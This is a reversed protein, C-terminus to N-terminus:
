NNIALFCLEWICLNTCVQRLPFHSLPILCLDLLNLPWKLSGSSCARSSNTLVDVQSLPSMYIFRKRQNCKVEYEFLIFLGKMQARRKIHTSDMPSISFVGFLDFVFFFVTLNVPLCAPLFTSVWLTYHPTIPGKTSQTHTQITLDSIISVPTKLPCLHQTLWVYIYIRPAHYAWDGEQM